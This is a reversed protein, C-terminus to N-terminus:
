MHKCYIFPKVPRKLDTLTLKRNTKFNVNYIQFSNHHTNIFTSLKQVPRETVTNPLQSHFM